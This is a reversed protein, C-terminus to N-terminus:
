KRVYHLTNDIPKGQADNGSQKVIRTKGDASITWTETGVAKGNLWAVREVTRDNLRKLTVMQGPIAGPGTEVRPYPKGDYQAAYQFMVMEGKPNMTHVMVSVGDKGSPAVTVEASQPPTGTVYKSQAVDLKWDGVQPDGAARASLSLACLSLAAIILHSKM